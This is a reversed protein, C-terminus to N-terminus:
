YKRITIQLVGKKYTVNVKDPDIKIPLTIVLKYETFKTEKLRGYWEHFKVDKRLKAYVYIKNESFKVDITGEQAMPLDVYVVIKDGLDKVTYLPELSGSSDWLPKLMREFSSIEQYLREMEKRLMSEIYDKTERALREVKKMFKEIEEYIDM